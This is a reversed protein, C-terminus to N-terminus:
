DSDAHNVPCALSCIIPYKNLFKCLEFNSMPYTSKNYFYEELSPEQLVFFDSVINGYLCTRANQFLACIIYIKGVPSLRISLNRKFDVFKFYKVIKGFLWEVAVRVSSMAKNYAKMEETLNANRFPAQLHIRLPYAPDGYICLAKGTPSHAIRQLDRM